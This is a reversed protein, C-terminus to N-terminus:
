GNRLEVETTLKQNAAYKTDPAVVVELTIRVMAIDAENGSTVTNGNADLYVFTLATGDPPEDVDQVSEVASQGNRELTIGNLSYTIQETGVDIKHNGNLDNGFTISNSAPFAATTPSGPNWFLHNQDNITDYPYAQRIEREMKELGLRASEMAEVKHNGFSFVRISIDFLSYLAFLVIIWIMITIMMETLTFGREERLFRKEM